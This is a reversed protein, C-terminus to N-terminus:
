SRAAPAGAGILALVRGRERADIMQMLFAAADSKADPGLSRM